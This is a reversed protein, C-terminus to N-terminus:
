NSDEKKQPPEPPSDPSEEIWMWHTVQIAVGALDKWTSNELPVSPGGWSWVGRRVASGDTTWVVQEEAPFELWSCTSWQTSTSM